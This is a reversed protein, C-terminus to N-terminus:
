LDVGWHPSIMDLVGRVKRVHAKASSVTLIKNYFIKSICKIHLQHLSYESLIEDPYAALSSNYSSCQWVDATAGQRINKHPLLPNTHATHNTTIFVDCSYMLEQWPNTTADLWVITYHLVCHAVASMTCCSMTCYWTSTIVYQQWQCATISM